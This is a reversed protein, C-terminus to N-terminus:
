PSTGFTCLSSVIAVLSNYPVKRWLLYAKSGRTRGCRWRKDRDASLDSKNHHLMRRKASKSTSLKMPLIEVPHHDSSVHKSYTGKNVSVGRRMRFTRANCARWSRPRHPVRSISLSNPKVNPYPRLTRSAVSTSPLIPGLSSSPNSRSSSICILSIPPPAESHNLVDVFRPSPLAPPTVRGQLSLWTQKWRM